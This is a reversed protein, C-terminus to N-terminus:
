QKDKEEYSKGSLLAEPHRELFDALLRISRAADNVEDLVHISSRQFDSGPGYGAEFSGLLSNAHSVASQLQVSIDPLKQLAPTMNEDAKRSLDAANSMAVSLNHVTQQMEQGGFNKDASQLLHDLHQGIDQFPIQGLKNAVDGLSDMVSEASGNSPLVPTDGEMAMVAPKAHPVFELSLVKQGTLLNSSELKVRMGKAVLQKLIQSPDPTQGPMGPGFAWEPQIEFDVRVKPEGKKQDFLLKVDTVEGVQLGYILVPSGRALDKVSAEFYTVYPMREPYRAADADKKDDYLTFVSGADAPADNQAEPPTLFSIGGSLVSRLSHTQLQLGNAGLNVSLGSANWFRSQARVLKDYPDRVFVTVTLPEFGNGVDYGIAEGVNIDRFYIQSGVAISGLRDAKLIFTRGPEDSRQAPPNELGTFRDEPQGDRGDPEIQIYSGSVLTELESPNFTNLRPRVVWFMAHDTLLPKAEGTMRASVVVDSMSDDLRVNEVTGLTVDKYRIQTQGPVLGEATKFTITILPGHQAYDHWGLYAAILAAIIPILWIATFHRREVRAAPFHSEQNPSSPNDNM